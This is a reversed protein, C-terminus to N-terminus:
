GFALCFSRKLLDYSSWNLPFMCSDSALDLHGLTDAMLRFFVSESQDPPARVLLSRTYQQTSMLRRKRAKRGRSDILCNKMTM